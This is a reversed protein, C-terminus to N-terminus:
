EIKDEEKKTKVNLIQWESAPSPLETKISKKVKTILPDRRKDSHVASVVM